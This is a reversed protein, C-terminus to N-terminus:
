WVPDDYPTSAFGDSQLEDVMKDLRGRFFDRFWESEGFLRVATPSVAYYARIFLRGYWTQALVEDRFRRLTWVEPCDYSGYVSTAVYCGKRSTGSNGGPASPESPESPQTPDTSPTEEGKEVTVEASVPIQLSEPILTRWDAREGEGDAAFTMVERAPVIIGHITTTGPAVGYVGNSYDVGVIGGDDSYLWDVALGSVGSIEPQAQIIKNQTVIFKDGSINGHSRYANLLSIAEADFQRSLTREDHFVQENSMDASVNAAVTGVGNEGIEWASEPIDLAIVVDSEEGADLAPVTANGVANGGADVTFTVSESPISGANRVKAAYIRTGDAIAGAETETAETAYGFAGDEVRLLAERRLQASASAGDYEATITVDDADPIELQATVNVSAGGPISATYAATGADAGNVKFNVAVGDESAPLTDLGVNKLTATVEVIDGATAYLNDVSVSDGLEARSFPTHTVQIMSNSVENDADSTRVRSVIRQKGAVAFIKGNFAVAGLGTYFVDAGGDTLAVGDSWASKTGNDQANEEGDDTVNFAAAYIECGDTNDSASWLLYMRGDQAVFADFDTLSGCNAAVDPTVDTTGDGLIYYENSGSTVKEYLGNGITDSINLCRIVGRENEQAKEGYFLWASNNSRAFQPLTYTGSRPTVRIIHSFSNESFNYIQLFVDRDDSTGLSGDWDVTYAYLALGNYGIAGSDAVRPITPSAADIRTDLSRQGYWNRTYLELYDALEQNYEEATQNELPPNQSKWYDGIDRLEEETYEDGTNGWTGTKGDADYQYFLYAISSYATSIDSIEELNVFETKAYYLILRGTEADYAAKPMLDAAFDEETTHTLTEVAGFARSRTDFFAAQIDMATLMDELTADDPLVRNASSWAVFIQGNGLDQATPYEDPAGDDYIISPESWRGGSASYVSYYVARKNMTSRAAGGDDVYVMLMDGSDGVPLLQVSMDDSAGARLESEQSGEASLLSVQEGPQKWESRGNLYDRSVPKADRLSRGAAGNLADSMAGQLIAGATRATDTQRYNFSFHENIGPTNFLKITQVNFSEEGSIMQAISNFPTRFRYLTFGAAEFIWDIDYKLDGYADIGAGSFKFDTDFAFHADCKVNIVWVGVGIGVTFEPDLFIYGERRLRSNSTKNAFLGFDESTFPVAGEIKFSDQYDVYMHYVGAFAGNTGLDVLVNIGVPTAITITSAIDWDVKFYFILDEFFNANGSAPNPTANPERQSIRLRFGIEPTVSLSFSSSAEFGGSAKGAGDANPLDKMTKEMEADGKADGSELDRQTAFSQSWGFKYDFQDWEVDYNGEPKYPKTDRQLGISGLEFDGLPNGIIDVSTLNRYANELTSSGLMPFIFQDLTLGAAFRYGVDIPAYVNGNQDEFSVWLRNGASVDQKPNFTLTATFYNGNTSRTEYGERGDCDFLKAGQANYFAFHAKSPVLAASGQVSVSVSLMGDEVIVSTESVSNAFESDSYSATVGKTSRNNPMVTFAELAPFVVSSYREIAVVNSYAEGVQPQVRLSINGWDRIAGQVPVSFEGNADTMGEFGGINVYAGAVPTEGLSGEGTALRLLTNNERVVDGRITKSANNTRPQFLYYYIMNDQDQTVFLRDGYVYRPTSTRNSQATLEGDEITGNKDADGTMNAWETYYGTPPNVLLSYKKGIRANQAEMTGDDNTANKGAVLENTAPIGDTIDIVSQALSGNSTINPNAKADNVSAPSYAVYFSQAGTQPRITFVSSTLVTVEAKAYDTENLTTGNRNLPNTIVAGNQYYSVGSSTTNGGSNSAYWYAGQASRNSAPRINMRIISGNPVNMKYYDQWGDKVAKTVGSGSNAAAEVVNAIHSALNASDYKGKTASASDDRDANEFRVEVTARQYVPYIRISEGSARETASIVGKDMLTKVFSNNPTFTVAGGSAGVYYAGSINTKYSNTYTNYIDGYDKGSNAFYVGKLTIGRQANAAENLDRLTVTQSSNGYFGAVKYNGCTAEVPGPVYVRESAGEYYTDVIQPTGETFDYLKRNFPECSNRMEFRYPAYKFAFGYLTAQSAAGSKRATKETAFKIYHTGALGSVDLTKTTRSVNGDSRDSRTSGTYSQDSDTEFYTTKSASGEVKFDYEIGYIGYFNRSQNSYAMSHKGKDEQHLYVSNDHLDTRNDRDSGTVDRSWAGPYNKLQDSKGEGWSETSAGILIPPVLRLRYQIGGSASNSYFKVGYCYATGATLNYSILFNNGSGGDDNTSLTMSKDANYLYGYTDMSGTSEFDYTGSVTPTFKLYAIQGAPVSETGTVPTTVTPQGLVTDEKPALSLRTNITGTVGSSYFRVGWYYTANPTLETTIKFNAGEGGDDNSAIQNKSADYLYGYTDGSANTSEFTYTGVATPTFKIYIIQGGSTVSYSSTVSNGTSPPNLTSESPPQLTLRTNITGTAAGNYFKVGYYYTANATLNYSIRFNYGTGGDDNSSLTTSKNEAYLYGYTDTYSSGSSGTSEFVYAGSVTPTFKCYVIEGGRSVTASSTVFGGASPQSLAVDLLVATDEEAGHNAQAADKLEADDPTADTADPPAKESMDGSIRQASMAEYYAEAEEPGVLEYAFGLGFPDSNSASQLEAADEEPALIKVEAYHNKVADPENAELRLGFKGSQSFDSATVTVEAKTQGPVFGIKKLNFREYASVKATDTVTSVYATSFYQAGGTRTVTVKASPADRTLTIASDALSFTAPEYDDDDEITVYAAANVAVTTDPTDTGMLGILFMRSGDPKDNDVPRVTLERERVGPGFYVIGMAGQASEFFEHFNEFLSDANEAVREANSNEPLQLSVAQMERLSSAYRKSRKPAETVARAAEASDPESAEFAAASAENIFEATEVIEAADTAEETVAEPTETEETVTELTEAEDTVTEPTEAEETVSEPTETEETVAEPTEAEDTVAEPTEAEDTVAEPTEAEDTVTELTEAEEAVTEPTEAEDAVAEPTEAEETVAEPTEAEETVVEPVEAAGSEGDDFTFDSPNIVAGEQESLPKKDILVEYDEGYVSLFDAVKVAVNAPTAGDGHRLIKVTLAKDDERVSYDAADFDFHSEGETRAEPAAAFSGPSAGVAVDRADAPFQKGTEM